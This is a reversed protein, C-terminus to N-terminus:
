KVEKESNIIGIIGRSKVINVWTPYEDLLKNYLSEDTVKNVNKVRFFDVNDIDRNPLDDLKELYEMSDCGIGIFQWFVPKNCNDVIFKTTKAKDYNDGDTIFMVYNPFNAPDKKTYYNVVDKMVPSYNTGGMSYNNRVKNAIGYYNNINITDLRHFGDNFIWFDLEGNDDFQLAIPILREILAQVTGDRYECSMSGSFDLVLAVRSKLNELHLNNCINNFTDKRLNLKFESDKKSLNLQIPTKNYELETKNKVVVGCNLNNDEKNRNKFFGFM